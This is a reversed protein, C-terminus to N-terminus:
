SKQQWAPFCGNKCIESFDLGFARLCPNLLFAPTPRCITKASVSLISLDSLPLRDASQLFMGHGGLHRQSIHAIIRLVQLEQLLPHATVFRFSVRRGSRGSGAGLIGLECWFTLAAHAIIRMRITPRGQPARPSAQSRQSNARLSLFVLFLAKVLGGSLEALEQAINELLFVL